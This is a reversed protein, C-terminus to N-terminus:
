QINEFIKNFYSEILEVIFYKLTSQEDEYDINYLNVRYKERLFKLM